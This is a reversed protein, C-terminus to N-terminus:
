SLVLRIATLVLLAAFAYTLNRSSLRAKLWLGLSLGAMAPVGILIAKTWDVNGLAGHAITGVASTFIIAALSTATAIRADYALLTILLPVIIIGGGVGFLASFLGAVLAIGGLRV